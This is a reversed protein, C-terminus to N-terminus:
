LFNDQLDRLSKVERNHIKDEPEVDGILLLSNVNHKKYNSEVSLKNYNAYCYICEHKCTNYQGIDISEVCGCSTRQNKDKQTKIKCNILHSILVPDICCSHKIGFEKLDVEECCTFLEMDFKSAINSLKSSILKIDTELINKACIKKLNQKNKDYIDLFSFICRDTYGKLKNAIYEYKKIHWDINYKFSIIIPDYRWIVKEMGYKKSIYIFDDIRKELDPINPEIDKEYANITFQCYFKYNKSIYDLYKLLPQPNKTWFVICDIINPSLDIKSISHYNMPNRVLVYKEKLRNIFWESYFAPIDTRRSVSLIM